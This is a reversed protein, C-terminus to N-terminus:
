ANVRTQTKCIVKKSSSDVCVQVFFQRMRKTEERGTRQKATWDGDQGLFSESNNKWDM